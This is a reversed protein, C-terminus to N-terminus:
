QWPWCEGNGDPYVRWFFGPLCPASPTPSPAYFVIGPPNGPPRYAYAPPPPRYVYAPPPPYDDFDAATAAGISAMFALSALILKM